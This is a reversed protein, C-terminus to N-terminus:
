QQTANARFQVFRRWDVGRLVIAAALIHRTLKM